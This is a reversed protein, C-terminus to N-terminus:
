NGDAARAKSVANGNKAGSQSTIGVGAEEIAEEIVDQDIPWDVARWPSVKSHQCNADERNAPRDAAAWPHLRHVDVKRAVVGLRSVCGKRHWSWSVSLVSLLGDLVKVHPDEREGEM